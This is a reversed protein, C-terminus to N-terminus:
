AANDPMTFVGSSLPRGADMSRAVAISNLTGLLQGVTSWMPQSIPGLGLDAPTVPANGALTLQPAATGVLMGGVSFTVSDGAAYNFRGQADTTGAAGSGTKYTLGAVPADSFVATLPSYTATSSSTSGGRSCGSLLMVAILPVVTLAMKM